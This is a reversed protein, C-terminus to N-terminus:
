RLDACSHEDPLLPRLRVSYIKGGSRWAAGPSTAPVKAPAALTCVGVGVTTGKGLPALPWARVPGDAAAGPSALVAVQSPEYPRPGSALDSAPWTRPDLRARFRVAPDSRGEPQVIRTRADGMTFELVTADPVQGASVTHSRGLGAARAGDLLRDLAAPTLRYETVKGQAGQAATLARGTSYLSFGPLAGPGGMGAIGGTERMRLVLREAGSADKAPPATSGGPELTHPPKAVGSADGCAALTGACALAVIM